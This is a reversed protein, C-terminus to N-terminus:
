AGVIDASKKKRRRAVLGIIAAGGAFLPLSTPLPTAATTAALTVTAPENGTPCSKGEGYCFEAAGASVPAFVAQYATGNFSLNIDELPGIFGYAFAVGDSDLFGNGTPSTTVPNYVLNDNNEYSSSPLLYVPTGLFTGTVATAVYGTAGSHTGTAPGATIAGSGYGSVTWDLTVASAPLPALLGLASATALMASKNM